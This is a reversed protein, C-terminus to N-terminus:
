VDLDDSPVRQVLIGQKGSPQEAGIADFSFSRQDLDRHAFAAYNEEAKTRLIAALRQGSIGQEEVRDGSLLPMKRLSTLVM